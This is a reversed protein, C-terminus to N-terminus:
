EVGIRGEEILGEVIGESETSEDGAGKSITREESETEEGFIHPSNM